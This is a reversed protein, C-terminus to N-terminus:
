QENMPQERQNHFVHVLLGLTIPARVLTKYEFHTTLVSVEEPNASIRTLIKATLEQVTRPTLDAIRRGEFGLRALSARTGDDVAAPRSTLIVVVAPDFEALWSVIATEYTPVEDYGNLVLVIPIKNM